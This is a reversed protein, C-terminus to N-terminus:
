QIGLTTQGLAIANAIKAGRADMTLGFSCRVFHVDQLDIGGGEYRLRTSVFTVNKWHIGDLTQAAGALTLNEVRVNDALSRSSPPLLIEAEDAMLTADIYNGGLSAPDLKTGAGVPRPAAIQVQREDADDADPPAELSSRLGALEIRAQTVHPVMGDDKARQEVRDLTAISAAFFEPEASRGQLQAVSIISDARDVDVEATMLRGAGAERESAALSDAVDTQWPSSTAVLQAGSAGAAPGSVQAQEAPAHRAQYLIARVGDWALRGCLLVLLLPIAIRAYVPMDGQKRKLRKWRNSTGSTTEWQAV